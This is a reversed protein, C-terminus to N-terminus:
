IFTVRSKLRDPQELSERRAESRDRGWEDKDAILRYCGTLQPM